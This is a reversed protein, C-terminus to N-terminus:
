GKKAVKVPQTWWETGDTDTAKVKLFVQKKAIAKPFPFTVTYVHSDGMPSTLTGNIPQYPGGVLKSAYVQYFALGSEANSRWTATVTGQALKADFGAFVGAPTPNGGLVYTAPGVFDTEAFQGQVPTAQDFLVSLAIYLRSTPLSVDTVTFTATGPDTGSTGITVIGGSTAPKFQPTGYNIRYNSPQSTAGPVAYYIGYGTVLNGYGSGDYYGQLQSPSLKPWTVTITYPGSGSGSASSVSLGPILTPSAVCNVTGGPSTCNSPLTYATGNTVNDYNYNGNLDASVIMALFEGAGGNALSYLFTTSGSVECGKVGANGWNTFPYYENTAKNTIMANYTQSLSYSQTGTPPVPTAALTLRTASNASVHYNTAGITLTPGIWQDAVWSKTSDVLYYTGSLLSVTGSGSDTSSYTQASLIGSNNTNSNGYDWFRTLITTGPTGPINQQYGGCNTVQYSNGCDATVLLAPLFLLGVLLLTRPIVRIWAKM